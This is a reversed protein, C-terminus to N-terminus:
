LFLRLLTHNELAALSCDTPEAKKALFHHCRVNACLQGNRGSFRFGLWNRATGVFFGLFNVIELDHLFLERKNKM